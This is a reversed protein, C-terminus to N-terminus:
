IFLVNVISDSYNLIYLQYGSDEETDIGISNLNCSTFCGLFLASLIFVYVKKQIKNIMIGM